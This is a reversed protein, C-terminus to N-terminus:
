PMVSGFLGAVRTWELNGDGEHWWQLLWRGLAHSDLWRTIAELGKPLAVRLAGFEESIPEGLLGIGLALVVALGLVVLALATRDSLGSHRRVWSAGSGLAVTGHGEKLSGEWVANARRTPM